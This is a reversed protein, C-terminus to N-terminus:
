NAEPPCTNMPQARKGTAGSFILCFDKKSRSVQFRSKSNNGGNLHFQHNLIEDFSSKIVQKAGM